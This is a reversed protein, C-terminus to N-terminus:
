QEARFHFTDVQLIGGNVGGNSFIKFDGAPTVACLVPTYNGGGTGYWGTAWSNRSPRLGEQYNWLVTGLTATPTVITCSTIVEGVENKYYVAGGDGGDLKHYAGNQLTATIWAPQQKKALSDTITKLSELITQIDAGTLGQITSVGINKAGSDGATTSKLADILNNLYQRVEDPAADFAAKIESPTGTPQDALDAVKNTFSVLKQFM